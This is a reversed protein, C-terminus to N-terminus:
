TTRLEDLMVRLNERWHVDPGQIMARTDSTDLVSFAPRRAPTPYERTALPHVPVPRALLGRALAEEQIAVAFDYWSAVGLDSWHLIGPPVGAHLLACIGRALGTAFTPSGVQDSVVRVEHRDKMLRLMTMVFNKGHAAHVWSTRLVVARADSRLACEEGARKSVGYVSLPNTCDSPRYPRSSKGDFVFDTSLHLLRAGVRTAGGAIYEVATANLAHARECDEEARDVATYAAANVVWDPRCASIGAEVAQADTVDLESHSKAIVECGSATAFRVVASGVQGRAGLVLVRV